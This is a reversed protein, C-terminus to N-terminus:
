KKKTHLSNHIVSKKVKHSSSSSTTKLKNKPMMMSTRMKPSIPSKSLIAPINAKPSSIRSSSTSSTAYSNTTPHISPLTPKPKEEAKINIKVAEMIVDEDDESKVKALKQKAKEQYEKALKQILDILMGRKNPIDSSSFNEKTDKGALFLKLYLDPDNMFVEMYHLLYIGCDYYNSQLPVKAFIIDPEVAIEKKKRYLADCELYNRISRIVNLHHHNHALSDFIIFYCKNLLSDDVNNEDNPKIFNLNSENYYDQLSLKKQANNLYNFPIPTNFLFKSKQNEHSSSQQSDEMDKNNDNENSDNADQVQEKYCKDSLTPDNQNKMSQNSFNNRNQEENENENQIDESTSNNGQNNNIKSSSFNQSAKNISNSNISSAQIIDKQSSPLNDESRSSPLDNSFENTTHSRPLLPIADNSKNSSPICNLLSSSYITNETKSSRPFMALSKIEIEIENDNEEKEEDKNLIKNDNIKGINKDNNDNSSNLSQMQIHFSSSAELIKQASNEKSLIDLINDTCTRNNINHYNEKNIPNLNSNIVSPSNTASSSTISIVSAIEIDNKNEKDIISNDNQTENICFISDDKEINCFSSDMEEINDNDEENNKYNNNQNSEIKEDKIITEKNDYERDEKQNEKLLPSSENSSIVISTLTNQLAKNNTLSTKPSAITDEKFLDGLITQGKYGDNNSENKNFNDLSNNVFDLISDNININNALPPNNDEEDLIVIESLTNTESIGDQNNLKINKNQFDCSPNNTKDHGEIQDISKLKFNDKEKISQSQMIIKSINGESISLSSDYEDDVNSLSVDNKEEIIIPSDNEDIIQKNQLLSLSKMSKLHNEKIKAEKKNLLNMSERIVNSDCKITKEYENYFEIGKNLEETSNYSAINFEGMISTKNDIETNKLDHNITSLNSESSISKNDFSPLNILSSNLETTSTHSQSCAMDSICMIQNSNDDNNNLTAASKTSIRKIEKQNKLNSTKSNEKNIIKISHKGGLLAGPNYIVLMHWHYDQNIPIILYQKSFLDVKSTWKKIHQYIEKPTKEKKSLRLIQEYFFSNILHFKKKFSISLQDYLYKLYFEILSDNLFFNSKLREVDETTIIVSDIGKFPYIFLEENKRGNLLPKNVLNILQKQLNENKLLIVSPNNSVLTEKKQIYENKAIKKNNHDIIALENKNNNNYIEDDTNELLDDDIANSMILLIRKKEKDPITIKNMLHKIFRFYINIMQYKLESVNKCAKQMSSCFDKFNKHLDGTKFNNCNLCLLRSDNEFYFVFLGPSFKIFYEFRTLYKFDFIINKDNGINFIFEKKLFNLAIHNNTYYIKDNIFSHTVRLINKLDERKESPFTKSIYSVKPKSGEKMIKEFYLENRSLSINNNRNINSTNQTEKNDNDYVSKQKTLDENGKRRKFIIKSNDNDNNMRKYGGGNDFKISGLNSSIMKSQDKKNYIFSNILRPHKSSTDNLTNIPSFENNYKRKKKENINTKHIPNKIISTYRRPSGGPVSIPVPEGNKLSDSNSEKESM